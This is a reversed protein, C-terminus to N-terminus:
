IASQDVASTPTGDKRAEVKGYLAVLQGPQFRDKLYTGNFWICKLIARPGAGFMGRTGTTAGGLTAQGLTDLPRPLTPNEKPSVPDGVTLEFMPMRKTRFLASTRVEAIVSAMEGPRLEGIRRPNLRDEYRFPLYYLLDEVTAIGKAALVEALRPGIGKM